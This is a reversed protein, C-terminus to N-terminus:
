ERHQERPPAQPPSGGSEALREAAALDPAWGEYVLAGCVAGRLPGCMREWAIPPGAHYLLRNDMDPWIERAPLVDVWVPDAAFFRRLAEENAAM